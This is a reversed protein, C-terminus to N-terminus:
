LNEQEPCDGSEAGSVISGKVVPPQTPYKIRLSFGAAVLINYIKRFPTCM